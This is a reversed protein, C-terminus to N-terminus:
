SCSSSGLWQGADTGSATPHFVTNPDAVAPDFRAGTQPRQSPATYMYDTQRATTASLGFARDALDTEAGSSMDVGSAYTSPEAKSLEARSEPEERERTLCQLLSSFYSDSSDTPGIKNHKSHKQTGRGLSSKTSSAGEHMRDSADQVKAQTAADPNRRLEDLLPAESPPEPSPEESATLVAAEADADVDASMSSTLSTSVKEQLRSLARKAISVEFDLGLLEANEVLCKLRNVDGAVAAERLANTLYMRDKHPDRPPPPPTPPRSTKSWVPPTSLPPADPGDGDQEKGYEQQEKQIKRKLFWRM